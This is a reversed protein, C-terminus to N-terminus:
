VYGAAAQQATRAAFEVPTASGAEAIARYLGLKDGVVVAGVDGIM